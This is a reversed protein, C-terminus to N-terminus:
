FREISDAIQRIQKKPHTRANRQAPKLSSLPLMEVPWHRKVGATQNRTKNKRNFAGDDFVQSYTENQHPLAKKHHHKM